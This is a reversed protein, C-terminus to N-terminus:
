KIRTILYNKPIKYQDSITIEKEYDAVSIFLLNGGTAADFVGINSVTGWDSEAIGFVVDTNNGVLGDTPYDFTLPQRAYDSQTVEVVGDLLGVFCQKDVLHETLVKNKLYTSMGSM